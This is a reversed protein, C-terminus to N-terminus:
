VIEVEWQRQEASSFYIRCFSSLMELPKCSVNRSHLSSIPPPTAFSGDSSDGTASNMVGIHFVFIPFENGSPRGAEGEMSPDDTFLQFQIVWCRTAGFLTNFWTILEHQPERFDRLIRNHCCTSPTSTRLVQFESESILSFDCKDSEM